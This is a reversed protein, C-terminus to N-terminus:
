QMTRVPVFRGNAGVILASRFVFEGDGRDQSVVRLAEFRSRMEFTTGLRGEFCGVRLLERLVERYGEPEGYGSLSGRGPALPEM